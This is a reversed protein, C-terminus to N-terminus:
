RSGCHKTRSSAARRLPGAPPAALVHGLILAEIHAVIRDQRAIRDFRRGFIARLTHCNTVHIASLRAIAVYLQIPDIGARFVGERRGRRLISGILAILGAHVAKLLASRAEHRARHFNEDIVLMAFYRQRHQREVNDRILRRLASVPDMAGLRIAQDVERFATYAKELVRLYLADKDGFYHYVLQKNVGAARAISDIRAGELGRSGSERTAAALLRRRSHEPHRPRPNKITM